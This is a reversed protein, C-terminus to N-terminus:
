ELIVEQRVKVRGVVDSESGALWANLAALVTRFGILVGFVSSQYPMPGSFAM